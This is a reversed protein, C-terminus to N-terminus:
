WSLRLGATFAHNDTGSGLMGDYRLYIQTADAVTTAASLGIIAADRTPTAGYVTFSASPAGAFAATIPRATSAFEHQWGLRLALDLRRQNALPISSAFDAGLVTRLSNTTQQAVNLNLSQAGSEAFANQLTTSFQVRGFPTITLAQPWLRLKYGTELQTLFQKAGTSGNATRAQLNPIQIQRQMQNGLYAYGALADAYFGAQTFSGHAALSVANSWGQGM